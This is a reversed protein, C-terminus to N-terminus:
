MLVALLSKPSHTRKILHTKGPHNGDSVSEQASPPLSRSVKQCMPQPTNHRLADNKAHSRQRRFSLDHFEEGKKRVSQDQGQGEESLDGPCSLTRLVGRDMCQIVGLDVYGDFVRNVEAVISRNVKLRASWKTNTRTSSHHDSSVAEEAVTS